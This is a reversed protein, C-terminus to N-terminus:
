PLQVPIGSGREKKKEKKQKGNQEEEGILEDTAQSPAPPKVRQAEIEERKKARRGNGKNWGIPM